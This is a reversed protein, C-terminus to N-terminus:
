VNRIVRWWLIMRRGFEELQDDDFARKVIDIYPELMKIVLAILVAQTLYWLDRWQLGGDAHQDSRADEATM